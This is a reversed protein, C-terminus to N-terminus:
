GSQSDRLTQGASQGADQNLEPARHAALWHPALDVFEYQGQRRGRRQRRATLAQHLVPIRNHAVYARVRGQMSGPSYREITSRFSAEGTVPAPAVCRVSDLAGNNQFHAWQDTYARLPIGTDAMRECAERTILYAAACLVQKIDVPFALTARSSLPISDRTSLRCPGSGLKVVIRLTVVEAGRMHSAIEETLPGIGSPLICDDELVLARDRGEELIARYVNLHSLACGAVGPRFLDDNRLIPDVLLPDDVNLDRGEVAEAIQYSLDTKALQSIIHRRRDTSRALNIVYAHM